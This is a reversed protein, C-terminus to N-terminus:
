YFAQFPKMFTGLGKFQLSEIRYINLKGNPLILYCYCHLVIYSVNNHNDQNEFNRHLKQFRIIQSTGLFNTNKGKKSKLHAVVDTVLPFIMMVIIIM